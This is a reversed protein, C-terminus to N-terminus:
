NKVRKWDRDYLIKLKNKVDNGFIEKPADASDLSIAFTTVEDEEDFKKNNDSDKRVTMIVKKAAATYRWNQLDHGNPSLQHFNQGKSDSVFLYSADKPSFLKDGNFDETIVNYFIHGDAYTETSVGDSYKHDISYILMKRESLLRSENTITNYFLINWYSNAPLEKYSSSYSERGQEKMSLPFMLVGSSDIERFSDMQINLNSKPDNVIAVSDSVAESGNAQDRGVHVCSAMAVSLLLVSFLKLM